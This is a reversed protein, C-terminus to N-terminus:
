KRTPPMAVRWGAQLMKRLEAVKDKMSEQKALNENEDNFFKVPMTHNYLETGWVDSWNPKATDRDFGYWEVFRYADVRLAYGMVDEGHNSSKFPPKGPISSLGSDPRSFQSFAGKKWEQKPDKLLPVVSSGEVCTLLDKNDAPCLPPVPIGALETVSPFIDILEVLADTRMGSDTVGPVRLIFPVHTDDEFNTHKAWMNHEGLKWGHDAWLVIITSNELGQHVLEAMVKGIQADTYSQAAHYGRRLLRADADSVHCKEGSISANANSHCEPLNYKNMDSYSRLEGSVSWAIPPMGTPADSNKPLPIEDAPPYMDYYKSPAYFPLHPKHFGTALFFPTNDGKTRNLKIEQITKVAKDAVQGDRLDNDAINEFSHWSNRKAEVKNNGHFYPLSWSYRIDDNGSPLGPHFIKGMGISTYGNEKFYQPITTANTFMRWYEDTAIRWVHNTDPRRGTLLSARSPSCVAVQCYAREFVMSLSALSDITPTKIMGDAGYCGLEPRLDDVAIMWVDKKADQLKVAVLLLIAIFFLSHYKAM